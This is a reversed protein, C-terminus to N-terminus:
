KLTTSKRDRSATKATCAGRYASYRLMEWHARRYTLSCGAGGAASDWFTAALLGAGPTPRPTPGIGETAGEGGVDSSPVGVRVGVAAPSGSSPSESSSSVEPTRAAIPGIGSRYATSWNM